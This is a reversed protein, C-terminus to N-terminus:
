LIRTSQLFWDGRRWRGWGKRRHAGASVHEPSARPSRGWGQGSGTHGTSNGACPQLAPSCPTPSVTLALIGPRLAAAEVAREEPPHHSALGALAGQVGRGWPLYRHRAWLVGAEWKGQSGDTQHPGCSSRECLPLVHQRGPCARSLCLSPGPGWKGRSLVSCGMWGNTKGCM